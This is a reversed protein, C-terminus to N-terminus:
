TLFNLCHVLFCFYRIRLIRGFSALIGLEYMINDQKESMELRGLVFMHRRVDTVLMHDRVMIM